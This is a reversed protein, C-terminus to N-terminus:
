RAQQAASGAAVAVKRVVDGPRAWVDVDTVEVVEFGDDRLQALRAEDHARDVLATHHRESQVEIILPLHPHRLDVRGTWRDGGSDVQRRMPFGAADLVEIARRELGSAPPVYDPGREDLYRRLGAVGNRGREGMHALVAAISGGSLLRDAWLRDVLAIARGESCDAFLHIALLEPRVVRVGRLETVWEDPLLRVKRVRANAIRRRTSSTTVVTIPTLSCGRRGWWAAATLHSVAARGGLDLIPALLLQARTRPVGM